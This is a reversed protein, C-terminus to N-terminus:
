IGLLILHGAGCLRIPYSHEGLMGTGIRARGRRAATTHAPRAHDRVAHGRCRSWLLAVALVIARSVIFLVRPGPVLILAHTTLLFPILHDIPLM